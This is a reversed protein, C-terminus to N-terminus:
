NRQHPTYCSKFKELIWIKCGKGVGLRKFAYGCDEHNGQNARLFGTLDPVADPCLGGRWCSNITEPKMAKVAKETVVKADETSYDKWEKKKLGFKATTVWVPTCHCSRPEGCGGGEPNM